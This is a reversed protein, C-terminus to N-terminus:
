VTFYFYKKYGLIVPQFDVKAKNIENSRIYTLNAKVLGCFEVFCKTEKLNSQRLIM